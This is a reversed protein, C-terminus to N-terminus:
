QKIKFTWGKHHKRTGKICAHILGNHLNNDSAFKSINTFEYKKDDSSTGIYTLGTLNRRSTSESLNDRKSIFICTDPSYIKPKINMKECLIDKDLEYGNSNKWKDYGDLLQIDDCFNQFGHWRECVIVGKYTPNKVQFKESYCRRIMHSWTSYEKTAKGNYKGLWKGQGIYGVKYVSPYNPNKINGIKINSIDAEIITGDEFKCLRYLYPDARNCRDTKGIITFKGCSSSNWESGNFYM